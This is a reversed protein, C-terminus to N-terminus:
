RVVRVLRDDGDGAFGGSDTNSTIAYISGDPAAAVDRVRGLGGIVTGQEGTGIDVSHVTGARLSAAMVAGEGGLPGGAYVVIGGIGLAPDFCAVPGVGSGGACVEEPWGHDAGATVLTIEDNKTPGADAVIMTGDGGWAIGRPDRFGSAYVPSGAVPNDDPVSGDAGLRLIKGALPGGEGPSGSASGTGVYLMGDPGFAMAGGNAFASAPISDIVTGVDSARAGDHRIWMVRNWLEGGEEYTVYAYLTPGNPPDPHAALGVLGADHRGAARLTILAREAPGDDGVAMIAGDREAVYVALLGVAIARPEDLGPALVEVSGSGEEQTTTPEPLPVGQSPSLLIAASVALAGIIGAIRLRRDM